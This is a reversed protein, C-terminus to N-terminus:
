LAPCDHVAFARGNHTPAADDDDDDDHHYDKDNNRAATSDKGIHITEPISHFPIFHFSISRGKTSTRTLSHTHALPHLWVCLSLCVCLSIKKDCIFPVLCCTLLRRRQRQNSRTARERLSGSFLSVVCLKLLPSSLLPSLQVLFLFLPFCFSTTM